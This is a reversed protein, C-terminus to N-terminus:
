ISKRAYRDEKWPDATDSYGRKEWYGLEQESAFKIKRLWM